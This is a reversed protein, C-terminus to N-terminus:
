APTVADAPRFAPVKTREDLEVFHVRVRMGIHVREAPCDTLQAYMRAGDDLDILCMVLPLEKAWGSYNMGVTRSVTHAYVTGYPSADVWHLARSGCDICWPRPLLNCAGCRECKQLVFRGESAATWFPRTLDTITPVPKPPLPTSM